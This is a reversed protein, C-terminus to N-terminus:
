TLTVLLSSIPSRSRQLNHLSRAVTMRRMTTLELNRVIIVEVNLIEKVDLMVMMSVVMVLVMVTEKEKMVLIRLLAADEEKITEVM